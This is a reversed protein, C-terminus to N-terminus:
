EPSALFAHFQLDDFLQCFLEDPSSVIKPDLGLWATRQYHEDAIKEVVASVALRWHDPSMRRLNAIEVLAIM